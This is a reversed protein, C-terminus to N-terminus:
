YYHIKNEKKLISILTEIIVRNNIEKLQLVEAKKRLPALKKSWADNATIIIPYPTTSIINILESVGGWDTVSLGDAEDVLIIKGKKTLSQQETAPRLIERLKSKNRLDSANLEFIESNTENATVHILTTKGTGPPGYLLLAKKKPFLNLFDKIKLM